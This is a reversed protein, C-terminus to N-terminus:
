YRDCAGRWADLLESHGDARGSRLGLRCGHRRARNGCEGCGYVRYPLDSLSLVKEDPLDSEIKIPGVNAYPVRLYEAQGGPYSGLLHSFGFLGAPAHGMLKSAKEADPNTTDCCSYLQKSCFFCHGCAIVFPVV